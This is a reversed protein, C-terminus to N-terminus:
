AAISLVAPIWIGLSIVGVARLAGLILSPVVLGALSAIVLLGLHHSVSRDVLRLPRAWAQTRTSAGRQQVANGITTVASTRAGGPGIPASVTPPRRLHAIAWGLRPRHQGWGTAMLWAGACAAMSCAVLLGTVRM